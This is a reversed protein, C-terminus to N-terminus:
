EVFLLDIICKRCSTRFKLPYMYSNWSKKSPKTPGSLLFPKLFNLIKPLLLTWLTWNQFFNQKDWLSANKSPNIRCIPLECCFLNTSFIQLFWRSCAPLSFIFLYIKLGKTHFMLRSKKVTKKSKVDSSIKKAVLRTWEAANELFSRPWKALM